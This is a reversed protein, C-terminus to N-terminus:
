IKKLIDVIEEELQQFTVDEIGKKAFFIGKLPKIDLEKLINYGKRKIKNRQIAGKIVKKPVVFAVKSDTDSFVVRLYLHDSHFTRGKRVIEPFESKHLKKSSQLM